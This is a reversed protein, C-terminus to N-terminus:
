KRRRGEFSTQEALWVDTAAEARGTDTLKIWGTTVKERAMTLLLSQVGVPLRDFAEVAGARRFASCSNKTHRAGVGCAWCQPPSPIPTLDGTTLM